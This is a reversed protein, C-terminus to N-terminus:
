YILMIVNKRSVVVDRYVSKQFILKSLEETQKIGINLDILQFKITFDRLDMGFTNKAGNLNNSSRLVLM